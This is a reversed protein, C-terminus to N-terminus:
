AQHTATAFPLTNVAMDAVSRLEQRSKGRGALVALGYVTSLLYDALEAANAEESLQGRRQEAQLVTTLIKETERGVGEISDATDAPVAASGSECSSSVFLCGRPSGPRATTDIIAYFFKRLRDHLPTEPADTLCRFNPGSYLESYREMASAFLQEKNGFAAYLSPKNIGLESTLQALSTGAYGNEWFLRMAKDLAEDKDFCRKRGANM